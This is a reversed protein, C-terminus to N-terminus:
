GIAMYREFICCSSKFICEKYENFSLIREGFNSHCVNNDREETITVQLFERNFELTKMKTKTHM